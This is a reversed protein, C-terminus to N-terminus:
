SLISIIKKRDISIIFLSLFFTIESLILSKAQNSTVTLCSNLKCLDLFTAMTVQSTIASSPSSGYYGQSGPPLHITRGRVEPKELVRQPEQSDCEHVRLVTRDKIDRFYLM